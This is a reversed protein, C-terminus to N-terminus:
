LISKTSRGDHPEDRLRGGIAAAVSAIFAGILKALRLAKLKATKEDVKAREAALLQKVVETRARDIRDRETAGLKPSKSM